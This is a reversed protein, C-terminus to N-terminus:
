FAVIIIIMNEKITTKLKNVADVYLLKMEGSM